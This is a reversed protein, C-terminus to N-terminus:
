KFVLARTRTSELVEDTARRLVREARANAKPRRSPSCTWVRERLSEMNIMGCSPREYWLTGGFVTHYNTTLYPPQVYCLAHKSTKRAIARRSAM